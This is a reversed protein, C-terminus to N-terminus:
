ALQPEKKAEVEVDKRPRGPKRATAQHKELDENKILFDRGIKEAPLNGERILLAIRCRKVGLFRAAAETTSYGPIM